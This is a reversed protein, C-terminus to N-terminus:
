RYPDRVTIWLLDISVVPWVADLPRSPWATIEDSVADTVKPILGPSVETGYLKALYWRIDRVTM